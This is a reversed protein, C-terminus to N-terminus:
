GYQRQLLSGRSVPVFPRRLQVAILRQCAQPYSGPHIINARKISLSISLSLPFSTLSRELRTLVLQSCLLCHLISHNALPILSSSPPAARCARAVTCPYTYVYSGGTALCAPMSPDIVKPRDETIEVRGPRESSRLFIMIPACGAENM